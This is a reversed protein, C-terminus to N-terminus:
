LQIVWNCLVLDTPQGLAFGGCTVAGRRCPWRSSALSLHKAPGHEHLKWWWHVIELSRLEPCNWCHSTQCVCLQPSFILLLFCCLHTFLHICISHYLFHYWKFIYIIYNERLNYYFSFMCLTLIKIIRLIMKAQNKAITRVNNKIFQRLTLNRQTPKIVIHVFIFLCTVFHFNPNM